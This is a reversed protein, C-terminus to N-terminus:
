GCVTQPEGGVFPFFIGYFPTFKFYFGGGGRKERKRKEGVGGSYNRFRVEKEGEPFDRRMAPGAPAPAVALIFHNGGFRIEGDLRYIRDANKNYRDYELEDMVYILILLCTSLGIALGIINIASFGKNKWLNRLATKFYNRFM